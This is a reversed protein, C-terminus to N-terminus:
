SRRTWRTGYRQKKACSPCERLGLIGTLATFAGTIRVRPKGCEQNEYFQCEIGPISPSRLISDGM